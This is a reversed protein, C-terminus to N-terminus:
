KKTKYEPCTIYSNYKFGDTTNLVIVYGDCNKELKPDFGADILKDAEISIESDLAPYFEENKALFEKTKKVLEDEMLQYIVKSKLRFGFYTM